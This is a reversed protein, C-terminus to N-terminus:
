SAKRQRRRLEKAAISEIIRDVESRPVPPRCRHENVLHILGDVVDISVYRRLLHGALKTLENNRRGDPIGDRLMEVWASPDTAGGTASTAPRSQVLELLWRPAAALTETRLWEYRRGSVHPSPPLVVFGGEGRVDVGPAIDARPGIGGEAPWQYLLHWGGGGTVTTLTEPLRGHREQLERIAADGGHRPDVDLAWVGARPGCALGIGLEERDPRWIGRAADVSAISHQWRKTLPHKGACDLEGCKCRGRRIPLLPFIPWGREAYHVALEIHTGPSESPHRDV